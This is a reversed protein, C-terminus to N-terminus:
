TLRSLYEFDRRASDLANSSGEQEVYLLKGSLDGAAALIRKLDLAGAGLETDAMKGLIPIDKIHFSAYRDRWRTMYELPDAGAMAVNGVDLQLRVIAPDLAEVLVDFPVKGDIPAFNDPETHFGLWIEHQRAIRGARNFRDAWRRWDDM